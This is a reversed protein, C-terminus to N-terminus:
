GRPLHRGRGRGASRDAEVAELLRLAHPNRPHKSLVEHALDEAEKLRGMDRLVGGLGVMVAPVPNRKLVARYLDEAERHRDLDRFCAALAIRCEDGGGLTLARTLLDAGLRAEGGRRAEVGALFADRPTNYERARQEQKQGERLAALRNTAIRNTPDIGLVGRYLAEAEDLDGSEVRCRALRLWADVAEPELSVIRNNVAVSEAGWNNQLALHVAHKTLQALEGRREDM